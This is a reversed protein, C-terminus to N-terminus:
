ATRLMPGTTGVAKNIFRRREEEQVTGEGGYGRYYALADAQNLSEIDMVTNLPPLNHEMVPDTGDKFPVRSLPFDSSGLRGRNDLVAVQGKIENVQQGMAELSKMLMEVWAPVNQAGQQADALSLPQPVTAPAADM